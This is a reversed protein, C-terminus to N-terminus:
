QGIKVLNRRPTWPIPINNMAAIHLTGSQNPDDIVPISVGLLGKLGRVLEDRAAILTTSTAEIFIQKIASRYEARRKVDRIRRYRLWLDYGDEDPLPSTPNM